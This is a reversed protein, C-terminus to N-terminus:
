PLTFAFAGYGVVSQKDGATDGSNRLDILHTSWSRRQALLVAAQLGILGCAASWPLGGADGGVVADATARDLARATEYDEYHSLDTSVLLVAGDDVLEDLVGAVMVAGAFGTLLPVVAAGCGLHQLFPLQVELCHERAFAENLVRAREPAPAVDVAGLPTRWWSADLTAVGDFRHFHSPGILVLRDLTEPEILAFASAAVPGSYVYGAHPVVLGRIRGGLTAARASGLMSGVAEKLVGPDSPYFTGAVVPGHTWERAM